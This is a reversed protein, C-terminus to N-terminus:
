SENRGTMEPKLEGTAEDKRYTDTQRELREMEDVALVKNIDVLIKVSGKIKAMGLIYATDIGMGFRPPEEIEDAGIDLVECVEDVIFGMTVNGNDGSIQVVVICTKETDETSEMGFKRRLDVIPIVKGRLNIVGRVFEPTKPVQTVPVMGIIEQVHLIEIGYEENALRFTLYKGARDAATGALQDMTQTLEAM